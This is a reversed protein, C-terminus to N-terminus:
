VYFNVPKSFKDLTKNVINSLVENITSGFSEEQSRTSSEPTVIGFM